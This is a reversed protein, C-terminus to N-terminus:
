GRGQPTSGIRTEMLGWGSRTSLIANTAPLDAMRCSALQAHHFPAPHFLVRSGMIPPLLGLDFEESGWHTTISPPINHLDKAGRLPAKALIPIIQLTRVRISVLVILRHHTIHYIVINVNSPKQSDRGAARAPATFRPLYRTCPSAYQLHTLRLVSSKCICSCM